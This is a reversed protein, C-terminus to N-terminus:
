LAYKRARTKDTINKVATTAFARNGLINNKFDFKNYNNVANLFSAEGFKQQQYPNSQKPPQITAYNASDLTAKSKQSHYLQTVNRM